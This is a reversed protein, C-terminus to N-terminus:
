QLYAQQAAVPWREKSMVTGTVLSTPSVGMSRTSLELARETMTERERGSLLASRARTSHPIAARDRPM